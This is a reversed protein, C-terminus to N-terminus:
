RRPRVRTRLVDRRNLWGVVRVVEGTDSNRFRLVVRRGTDRAVRYTWGEDATVNGLYVRGNTVEFTANVAEGYTAVKSQEVLGGRALDGGAETFSASASRGLFGIAVVAVLAILATLLTYEVLSAGRESRPRVIPDTM